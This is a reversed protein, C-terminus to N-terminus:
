KLVKSIYLAMAHLIVRHVEQIYQTDNSHVKVSYHCIDALKSDKKTIGVTLCELDNAKNIANIVNKSEGSTSIGIVVDDKRAYAEVQRSFIYEFGLDNGIATIIAPNTLSYVPLARRSDNIKCVLEAAFHDADSSSGGNGLILSKSGKKLRRSLLYSVSQTSDILVNLYKKEINLNKKLYDRILFRM